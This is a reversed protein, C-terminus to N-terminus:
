LQLAIETDQKHVVIRMTRCSHKSINLCGIVTGLINILPSFFVCVCVCVYQSLILTHYINENIPSLRLQLQGPLPLRDSADLFTLKYVLNLIM